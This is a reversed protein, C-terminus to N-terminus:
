VCECTKSINDCILTNHEIDDCAYLIATQNDLISHNSDIDESTEDILVISNNEENINQYEINSNSDEAIEINSPENDDLPIIYDPSNVDDSYDISSVAGSGEEIKVNFPTVIINTDRNSQTHKITAVCNICQAAYINSTTIITVLLMSVLKQLNM